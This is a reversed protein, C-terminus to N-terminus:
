LEKIFKAILQQQKEANLETMLMKEAIIFATQLIEKKMDDEAQHYSQEIAKRTHENLNSIERKAQELLILKKAEAEQKAANVIEVSEGKAAELMVKAQANKKNADAEQIVAENIRTQIVARRQRMAKRFPNYVWRTLLILLIITAILHTIFILVNPFLQNIIQTPDIAAQFFNM